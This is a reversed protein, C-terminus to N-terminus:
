GPSPRAAAPRYYPSQKELWRSIFRGFVTVFPRVYRTMRMVRTQWEEMSHRQYQLISQMEETDYWDLYYSDLEPPFLPEDPIRLGVLGFLVQVLERTKLRCGHAQGGAVFGTKGSMAGSDLLNEAASVLAHAVDADIIMECRADLPMEFILKTMTSLASFNVVTPLVGAVRLICYRLGSGALLREAEAKSKSYADVPSLPDTTRVPPTRKQTPGMVSASSVLVVAPRVASAEMARILNATGGINVTECLGPHAESVPPLIAAMHIVANQGVVIRSVDDANRIDGFLVHVAAKRYRRALRETRKNRTEFVTVAHGRRLCEDVVVVGISGFGGTVLINM